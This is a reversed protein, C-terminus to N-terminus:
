RAPRLVRPAAHRPGRARRPRAHPLLRRLQRLLVGQAHARARRRLHAPADNRARWARASNTTRADTVALPIPAFPLRLTRHANGTSAVHHLANNTDIAPTTSPQPSVSTTYKQGCSGQLCLCSFTQGALTSQSTWPGRKTTPRKPMKHPTPVGRNRTIWRSTRGIQLRLVRAQNRTEPDISTVMDRSISLTEM